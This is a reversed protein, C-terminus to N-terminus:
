ILTRSRHSAEKIRHSTKEMHSSSKRRAGTRKVIFGSSLSLVDTKRQKNIKQEDKKHSYFLGPNRCM